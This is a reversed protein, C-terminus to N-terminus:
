QGQARRGEAGGGLWFARAKPHAFCWPPVYVVRRGRRQTRMIQAAFSRGTLPSAERTIGRSEAHRVLQRTGRLSRLPRAPFRHGWM